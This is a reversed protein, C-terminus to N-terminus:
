RSYGYDSFRFSFSAAGPSSCQSRICSKLREICGTIRDKKPLVGPLLRIMYHIEMLLRSCEKILAINQLTYLGSRCSFGDYYNSFYLCVPNLVCTRMVLLRDYVRRRNALESSGVTKTRPGTNWVSPMALASGPRPLVRYAAALILPTCALCSLAMRPRLGLVTVLVAYSSAGVVGAFGTGSSWAALTEEGYLATLALFTAEGLAGAVSIFAIAALLVFRGLASPKEACLSALLFAITGVLSVISVLRSYAARQFWLGLSAKLLLGPVVDAFLVAGAHRELVDEAASLFVVYAFNNVLGFIFFIFGSRWSQSTGITSGFSNTTRAGASQRSGGAIRNSSNELDASVEEVM